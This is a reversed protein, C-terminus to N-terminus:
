LNGQCKIYKPAMSGLCKQSIEYPTCFHPSFLCSDYECVSSMGNEEVLVVLLLCFARISTM